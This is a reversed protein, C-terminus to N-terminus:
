RFGLQPLSPANRGDPQVDFMSRWILASAHPKVDL